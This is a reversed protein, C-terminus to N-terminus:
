GLAAFLEGIEDELEEPSAVTEAVQSRILERLRLRMRHVAVRVANESM